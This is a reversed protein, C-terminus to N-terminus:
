RCSLCSPGTPDATGSSSRISQSPQGSITSRSGSDCDDTMPVPTTPTLINANSSDTAHSSVPLSLPNAIGSELRSDRLRDALYESVPFSPQWIGAETVEDEIAADNSPIVASTNGMWAEHLILSTWLDDDMALQGGQHENEIEFEGSCRM